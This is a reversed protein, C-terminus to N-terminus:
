SHCCGGHRTGEARREGTGAATIPPHRLPTEIRDEFVHVTVAEGILRSRVSYSCHHARITSGANIRVTQQIFEPLGTASLPRM